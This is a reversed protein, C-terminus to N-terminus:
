RPQLARVLPVCPAAVRQEDGCLRRAASPLLPPPLAPRSTVGEM